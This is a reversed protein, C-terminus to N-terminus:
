LNAMPQTLKGNKKTTQFAEHGHEDALTAMMESKESWKTVGGSVTVGRAGCFFVCPLKTSQCTM